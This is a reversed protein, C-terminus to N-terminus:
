SFLVFTACFTKFLHTVIRKFLTYTNYGVTRNISSKRSNSPTTKSSTANTKIPTSTRGVSVNESESIADQNNPHVPLKKSMPAILKVMEKQNKAFMKAPDSM